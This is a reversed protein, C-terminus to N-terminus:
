SLMEWATAAVRSVQGNGLGPLEPIGYPPDTVILDAGRIHQMGEECDGIWIRDLKTKYYPKM